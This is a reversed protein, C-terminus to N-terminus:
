PTLTPSVPEFSNVESAGSPGTWGKRNHTNRDAGGGSVSEGGHPIHSNTLLIQLSDCFAVKACDKAYLTGNHRKIIFIDFIM